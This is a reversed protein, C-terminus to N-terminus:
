KANNKYRNTKCNESEMIENKYPFSYSFVLVINISWKATLINIKAPTIISLSIIKSFRCAEIVNLTNIPTTM